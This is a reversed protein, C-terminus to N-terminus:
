RRSVKSSRQVSQKERTVGRSMRARAFYETLPQVVSAFMQRGSMLSNNAQDSMKREERRLMDLFHILFEEADQQKTTSFEPSWTQATKFAVPRRDQADPM